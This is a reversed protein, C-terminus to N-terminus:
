ANKTLGIGAEFQTSLSNYFAVYKERAFDLTIKKCWDAELKRRNEKLIEEINHNSNERWYFMYFPTILHSVGDASSVIQVEIDANHLNNKADMEIIWNVIKKSIGNSLGCEQLFVQYKDYRKNCEFIKGYDHMWVLLEMDLTFEVNEIKSFEKSLSLVVEIHHQLYWENHIFAKNAIGEKVKEIVPHIKLSM